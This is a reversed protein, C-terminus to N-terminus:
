NFSFFLPLTGVCNTEVFLANALNCEKGQSLHNMLAGTGRVHGLTDTIMVSEKLPLKEDAM